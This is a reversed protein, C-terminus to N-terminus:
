DLNVILRLGYEAHSRRFLDINSSTYIDQASLSLLMGSTIPFTYNIARTKKVNELGAGNALLDSYGQTSSVYALDQSVGLTGRGLQISAALTLGLTKLDGGPRQALAAEYQTRAGLETRWAAGGRSQVYRAGGVLVSPKASDTSGSYGGLLVLDGQMMWSRPQLNLELTSGLGFEGQAMELQGSYVESEVGVIRSPVQYSAGLAIRDMLGSKSQSFAVYRQLNETSDLYVARAFGGAQAQLDASLTLRYVFDPLSLDVTNSVSGNNLNESYGIDFVVQRDLGLEVGQMARYTEDHGAWLSQRAILQQQLPAPVSATEILRSNVALALEVDGTRYLAEAYDVQADGYYPDLMVARELNLLATEPRDFALELQGLLALYSAQSDCQGELARLQAYLEAATSYTSPICATTEEEAQVCTGFVATLLTLYSM